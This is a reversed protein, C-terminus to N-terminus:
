VSIGMVANQTITQTYTKVCGEGDKIYITYTGPVLSTYEEITNNPLDIYTGLKNIKVQYTGGNGGSPNAM